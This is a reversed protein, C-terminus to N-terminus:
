LGLKIKHGANRHITNYIPARAYHGYIAAYLLPSLALSFASSSPSHAFPHISLLPFSPSFSLSFQRRPLPYFLPSIILQLAFRRLGCFLSFRFLTYFLSFFSLRSRVAAAAAAVAAAAAASSLPSQININLPNTPSLTDNDRFYVPSPPPGKRRGALGRKSERDGGEIATLRSGSPAVLRLARGGILGCSTRNSVGVEM